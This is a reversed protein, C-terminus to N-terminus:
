NHVLGYKRQSGPTLIINDASWRPSARPKWVLQHFVRHSIWIWGCFSSISSQETYSNQQEKLQYHLFNSSDTAPKRGSFMKWKQLGELRVIIVPVITMPVLLKTILKSDSTYLRKAFIILMLLDTIIKWSMTYLRKTIVVSVLTCHFDLHILKFNYLKHLTSSSQKVLYAIASYAHIYYSNWVLPSFLLQTIGFIFAVIRM